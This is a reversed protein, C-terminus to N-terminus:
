PAPAGCGRLSGPAASRGRLRRPLTVTPTFPLSAPPLPAKEVPSPSPDAVAQRAGGATRGSKAATTARGPRPHYAPSPFTATDTPQTAALSNWRSRLLPRPRPGTDASVRDEGCVQAGDRLRLGKVKGRRGREAGPGGRRHGRRQQQQQFEPRRTLLQAACGFRRRRDPPGSAQPKSVSNESGSSDESDGRDGRFFLIPTPAPLRAPARACKEVRVGRRERVGAGRAPPLAPLREPPSPPGLASPSIELSLQRPSRGLQVM